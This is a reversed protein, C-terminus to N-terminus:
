VRLLIRTALSAITVMAFAMFPWQGDFLWWALVLWLAAMVCRIALLWPSELITYHRWLPQALYRVFRNTCGKHWAILCPTTIFTEIAAWAFLIILLNTWFTGLILVADPNTPINM